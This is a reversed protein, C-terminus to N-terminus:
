CATQPMGRPTRVQSLAQLEHLEHQSLPPNSLNKPRPREREEAISHNSAASRISVASATLTAQSELSPEGRIIQRVGDMTHPAPAEIDISPATGLGFDYDGLSRRKAATPAPEFAIGAQARDSKQGVVRLEASM